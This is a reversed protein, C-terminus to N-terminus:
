VEVVELMPRRREFTADFGNVGAATDVPGKFAQQYRVNRKGSSRVLEEAKANPDEKALLPANFAKAIELPSMSVARGLTWFGNFTTMVVLISVMTLLVAATLFGYNSRYFSTTRTQTGTITQPTSENGFAIATRFTLERAQSLLYETPDDFTIECYSFEDSDAVGTTKAFQQATTGASSDWQISSTSCVLSANGGYRSQLALYIGGAPWSPNTEAYTTIDEVVDDWITSGPDLAITSRNGNIIVPYQVTAARFQCIRGMVSGKCDVRETEMCGECPEVTSHDSPSSYKYEAEMIIGSGPDARMGLYDEARPPHAFSAMFVQEGACSIRKGYDSILEFQRSYSSCNVTFGAARLKGKCIGDGKCGTNSM